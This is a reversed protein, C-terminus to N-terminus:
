VSPRQRTPPKILWTWITSLGSVRTAPGPGIRAIRLAARPSGLQRNETGQTDSRQGPVWHDPGTSYSANITTINLAAVWCNSYGWTKRWDPNRQSCGTIVTIVLHVRSLTQHKNSRCQNGQEKQTQRVGWFGMQNETKQWGAASELHYAKSLLKGASQRPLNLNFDPFTKHKAALISVKFNGIVCISSLTLTCLLLM